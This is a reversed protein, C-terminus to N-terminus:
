GGRAPCPNSILQRFNNIRNITAGGGGFAAYTTALLSGYQANRGFDTTAGPLDNGFARVARARQDPSFRSSGSM